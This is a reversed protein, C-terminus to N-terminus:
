SGAKVILNDIHTDGLQRDHESGLQIRDVSTAVTSVQGSFVAVNDFWVQVTTATGKPVAHMVVHHWSNLTISSAMLKTYTFSGSPSLVQLWLQGNSNYRYIDAFRTNGSFFRFYPVDNGSVGAQSIDFWGDAYAGASPAPLASSFDAISGADATAHLYASCTGSKAITSTVSATGTGSTKVLFGSLTGSEFNNATVVTGPYSDAPAPTGVRCATAAQAPVAALSGTVIPIALITAATTFFRTKM